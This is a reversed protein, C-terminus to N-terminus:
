ISLIERDAESLFPAIIEGFIPDREVAIGNVYAHSDMSSMAVELVNRGGTSFVYYVRANLYTEEKLPQLASATMSRLLEQHEALKASEITIVTVDTNNKLDEIRLPARTLIQPDIYYITLTFNEPLEGKMMNSYDMLAGRLQLSPYVCYAAVVVLLLCLVIGVRAKWSKM